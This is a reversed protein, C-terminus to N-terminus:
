RDVIVLERVAELAEVDDDYSAAHGPFLERQRRYFALWNPLDAVPFTGSWVGKGFTFTRAESDYTAKAAM